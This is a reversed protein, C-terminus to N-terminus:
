NAEFDGEDDAILRSALERDMSLIFEGYVSGNFLISFHLDKERDISDSQIVEQNNSFQADLYREINTKTSESFNNCNNKLKAELSKQCIKM